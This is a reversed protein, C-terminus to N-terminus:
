GYWNTVPFGIISICIIDQQEIIFYEDRLVCIYQRRVLGIWFLIDVMEIHLCEVHQRYSWINCYIYWMYTEYQTKSKIGMTRKISMPVFHTLIATVGNNVFRGCKGLGTLQGM